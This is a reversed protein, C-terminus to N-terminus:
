FTRNQKLGRLRNDAIFKKKWTKEAM